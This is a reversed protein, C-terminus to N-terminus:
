LSSVTAHATESRAHSHGYSLKTRQGTRAQYSRWADGSRHNMDDRIQAKQKAKAAAEIEEVSNIYKDAGGQWVDRRRLENFIHTGWIGGWGLISTVPVLKHSYLMLTDPQPSLMALPGIGISRTARRALRYVAEMRSPIVVLESDFDWLLDLWWDPPPALKFKNTDPIFNGFRM